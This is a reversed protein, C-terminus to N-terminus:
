LVKDTILKVDKVWESVTQQNLHCVYISTTYLSSLSSGIKEDNSSVYFYGEGKCLYVNGIEKQIERNVQSLTRARM